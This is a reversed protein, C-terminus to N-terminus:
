RTRQQWFAELLALITGLIVVLVLDRLRAARLGMVGVVFVGLWMSQRLIVRETRRRGALAPIWRHLLAVFPVAMGTVAFFLLAYFAALTLPDPMRTLVLLGLGIWNVLGIGFALAKGWGSMALVNYLM